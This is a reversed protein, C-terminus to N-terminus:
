KKLVKKKDKPEEDPIFETYLDPYSKGEGDKDYKKDLYKDFDMLSSKRLDDEHSRGLEHDIKKDIIDVQNNFLEIAKDTFIGIRKNKKKNFSGLVCKFIYEFVADENIYERTLSNQIIDVNVRFKEKNFFIPIDIDFDKLDEKNENMYMNYLRCILDIYLMGRTKGSLKLGNIDITQIFNLFNLIILSYIDSFNTKVLESNREYMPNLIEFKYDDNGIRIILRHINEQFNDDNMLFSHKHTPDLVMYFYKAFNQEAFIYELDEQSTNLFYFIANKQAENLKGHFIVPLVDVELLNSFEILEELNYKFEKKKKGKVIGTLILNNKPERDYKIHAPEEDPFYEFCFFWSKPLLSKVREDLSYLYNIAKNYYKQLSLEVVNMPDNNVSKTRIHFDKGDYSVFIKSGQVDEYVTLVNEFLIDLYKDRTENITILGM